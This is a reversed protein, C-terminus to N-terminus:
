EATEAVLEAEQEQEEFYEPKHEKIYGIVNELGDVFKDFDEKYLFVKHKDYYVSGDRNQKRLSETITIFYDDGRTAKVDFFYTRRGARVINSYLEGGYEQENEDPLERSNEM